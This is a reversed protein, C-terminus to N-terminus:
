VVVQVQGSAVRRWHSGREANGLHSHLVAVENCRGRFCQITQPTLSIEPVMVLAEKGQRVVEEIARLYMETKGSGTVGYLLFARFGGQRLAPELEAWAQQQDANLEVCGAQAVEPQAALNHAADVTEVRRVIRRALGKEVLGDVPATGCHALRCLRRLEVPKGQRTLVELAATQKPTLKPTPQPREAEPLADLFITARTGSQDKAGAPVVVNLVQGWGCLYYDAMWRTLRLLNANFLPEDDLVRLLEKVQRGPPTETLHVCYGVTARDGKGFPVAVRKG